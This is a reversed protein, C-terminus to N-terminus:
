RSNLHEAVAERFEELSLSHPFCMQGEWDGGGEFEDADYIYIASSSPLLEYVSGEMEVTLRVEVADASWVVKRNAGGNM